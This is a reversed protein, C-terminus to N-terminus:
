RLGVVVQTHEQGLLPLLFLSGIVKKFAKPYLHRRIKSNVLFLLISSTILLSVFKSRASYRQYSFLNNPSEPLLCRRSGSDADCTNLFNKGSV